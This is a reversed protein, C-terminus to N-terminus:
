ITNLNKQTNSCCRKKNQLLSLFRSRYSVQKKFIM